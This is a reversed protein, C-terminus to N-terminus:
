ILGMENYAFAILYKLSMQYVSLMWNLNVAVAATGSSLLENLTYQLVSKTSNKFNDSRRNQYLCIRILDDTISLNLPFCADLALDLNLIRSNPPQSICSFNDAAFVQIIKCAHLPSRKFTMVYETPNKISRYIVFPEGLKIWADHYKIGVEQPYIGRCFKEFQNNELFKCKESYLSSLCELKVVLILFIQCM